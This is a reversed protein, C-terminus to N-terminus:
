HQGWFFLGWRLPGNKKSVKNIVFNILWIVFLGTIGFAMAFGFHVNIGWIDKLGDETRKTLYEYIQLYGYFCGILSLSMLILKKIM